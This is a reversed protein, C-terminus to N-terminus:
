RALGRYRGRHWLLPGAEAVPTAVALVEGVVISHDGGDHVARTAVELTALADDLLAVGTAPGRHHPVRALQGHVPRGVSAFWQAAPRAGETLVSVGWTGSALVADHVRADKDLCVLVLVPELSVSTFANATMAQDTGGAVTTVVTVGTAFRGVARRYADPDVGSM